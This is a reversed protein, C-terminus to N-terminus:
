GTPPTVQKAGEERKENAREIAAIIRIAIESLSDYLGRLEAASQKGRWEDDNVQQAIKTAGALSARLHAEVLSPISNIKEDLERRALDLETRERDLKGLLDPDLTNRLRQITKPSCDHRVALEVDTKFNGCFLDAIINARTVNNIKRYPM